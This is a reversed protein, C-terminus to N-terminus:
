KSVISCMLLYKISLMAHGVWGSRCSFVFEERQKEYNNVQINTVKPALRGMVAEDRSLEESVIPERAINEYEQDAESLFDM